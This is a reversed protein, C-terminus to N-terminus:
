YTRDRGSYRREVSYGGSSCVSQAVVQGASSLVTKGTPRAWVICATESLIAPHDVVEHPYRHRKALQASEAVCPYSPLLRVM